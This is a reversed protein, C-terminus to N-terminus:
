AAGFVDPYGAVQEEMGRDYRIVVVRYGLDALDARVRTDETAVEPQDHVSGDCFVCARVAEYYFDPRASYDSLTAQAHDPLRRGARYLHKLFRRELESAPDTRELLWRYQEDYSRGGHQRQTGGGALAMLLDRVLHRNLLPHDRQNTYTLLCDYCARACGEPDEPPRSDEGAASFHCISLAERAVEALASPEEVLRALVGLGGEASEWFLISRCEGDGVRESALEQEDVQFIAEMGRQLAAQLTALLAEDPAGEGAPRVLLINRTDRVLIRVGGIRTMARDLDVDPGGGPAEDEGPKRAWVGRVTDLTFGQDQSRRWGHNIRWLTAAPGYVLRLLPNGTADRVEAEVRRAGGPAPAFRFHSTVRYGERLREEEDCTIRETRRTVVDAMEFFRESYDSNSADLRVGCEECVDVAASEGEHFAGCAHCLKARVFRETADGTPLQSRLVRYKSGEHYVINRPGFETLALFRARSVFEGEDMGTPVYARIPLRPFNYGPLFGESALYRYPYFDSEGVGELNCLLDKQRRAERERREAEAVEDRPVRTQHSRDIATRAAQLQRDAAAYMERWRGFAVDFARAADQLAQRLWEESYWGARQLDEGGAALVARCEEFCAQLRAESLEIAQAVQERLPCGPQATDITETVSRGLSLGTRALWIAHVHARALEENGLDLRPPAVVGSVMQVPRRFFYQDHGSGVACYAVVFAPQGSRGARGSRQAYNAPSPPVNRLHVVNLDAIDIGLEMTPSCFLCALEGKRFAEEREIRAIGKVQGTHERAEVQGLEAAARMYFDRFFANAEREPPQERAFRMWRTRVPDPEPPAGDGRRWLLADARLQVAAGDDRLALCGAERLAEVWARLFGAYEEASLRADLHPWAQPSRLFRGLGSRGSLSGDWQERQEGELVFWAAARLHENEGFAWPEKLAQTVQRQLAEQREPTLCAADIALARRLHDLFARAVRLRTQPDAAALLPYGQWLAPDACSAELDKYDVRLLGCQELNPQVVRWGRRLDEYIRYEILAELARRNRQALPGHDAAERAYAEQPLALAEMAQRAVTTHDLPAGDEPLARYIASRLLAVQVFDNFHGAQLSADQRNDTFSLLKRASAEVLPQRRLEAVTSLGLLTTATSRGESSLRALKRFEVDRRTYVAGCSLCSLFPKPLFWALVGDGEQGLSGESRVWLRKPIADRYEKLVSRGSKTERFWTEPLEEERSEDWVPAAPNEVLLYGERVAGEAMEEWDPLQPLIANRRTDWLARYYEQGCERCFVLPFLVRVGAGEGSDPLPSDAGSVYYQGELTLFRQEPPELTAYVAGGQSIFQHLKFAFVPEDESTRLRSGLRFMEELYAQCRAAELGTAEALLLAGAALTIPTRRRLHGDIDQVGFTEEIWVALPHRVFDEYSLDAPAGAEV